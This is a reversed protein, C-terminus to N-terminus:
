ACPDAAGDAAERGGSTGLPTMGVVHTITVLGTDLGAARLTTGDARSSRLPKIREDPLIDAAEQTGRLDDSLCQSTGM